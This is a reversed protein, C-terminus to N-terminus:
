QIYEEIYYETNVQLSCERLHPNNRIIEALWRVGYNLLNYGITNLVRAISYITGPHFGLIASGRTFFAANEKQLTHWSHAGEQWWPFALLYTTVIEDLEGGYYQDVNRGQTRLLSDKKQTCLKEVVPFLENWLNWFSRPKELHDELMIIDTFLKSVIDSINIYPALKSVAEHQAQESSCLLYEALWNLYHGEQDYDRKSDSYDRNKFFQPWFLRGTEFLILDVISADVPVLLCLTQLAHESLDDFNSSNKTAATELVAKLVDENNQFFRLPTIGHYSLVERDYQPKLIVFAALINQALAIDATWLKERFVKVALNRRNDQVCILMLWLVAPDDFLSDGDRHTILTPLTAIAADVGDSAAQFASATINEFLYRKIGHECIQLSEEDVSTAFDNILVASVYILINNDNQFPGPESLLSIADNLASLPDHEYQEYKQYEASKHELRSHSWLFLQIYKDNGKVSEKAEEQAQILNEPLDSVLAIQIDKETQYEALKMKRIDIRYLIFQEKESLEDLNEFSKDIAMYIKQLREQFVNEPISNQKIQYGLIIDELCKKRFPLTNSKIREDDYFKNSKNLGRFYNATKENAIRTIELLFIARTQLIICAIPFLKDPFALVMSTVVATIAASHSRSLLRICIKVATNADLEPLNFYLWRELAMLVSELLNPTVSTGRYMSWLRNSATQVIQSENPFVLTIDFCENYDLNLSSNRYAETIIDFLEIIFDITEIPKAQLLVFIPTQFASAPYHKYDTHPNLGFKTSINHELFEYKNTEKRGLWFHRAVQLVLDPAATCIFGCNLVSDLLFEFLNSHVDRYDVKEEALVIDCITTLEPLIENASNFITLFIKEM